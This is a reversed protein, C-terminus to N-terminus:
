SKIYFKERDEAREIVLNGETEAIVNFARYFSEAERISGNRHYSAFLESIELERGELSNLRIQIEKLSDFSTIIFAEMRRM